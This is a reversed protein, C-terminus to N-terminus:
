WPLEGFAAIMRRYEAASQRKFIPDRSIRVTGGEPNVTRVVLPAPEATERIASWRSLYRLLEREPHSPEVLHVRDVRLRNLRGLWESDLHWRYSEDFPGVAAWTERHMFWGSPTAFDNIRVARGALDVELQNTSVFGTAVTPSSVIGLQVEIKRPHWVDDDEILALWDGTACRLGANIAAAQGASTGEVVRVGAVRTPVDRARGPDVSVLIEWSHRDWVSQDRVSQIARELFLAGEPSSPRAALRSPCVVSIRLGGRPEDDAASADAPRLM